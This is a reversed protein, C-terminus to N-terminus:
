RPLLSPAISYHSQVFGFPFTRTSVVRLGVDAPLKGFLPIGSGILVPVVTITLESILGAALFAQITRGGDVYLHRHGAASAIRVVEEPPASLLSVTARTGPPLRRMSASLVYVPKDEYPWAPFSLVKEFSARGMVLADISAMFTSYGCDEGAPVTANAQELWDIAGDPRAIFGDLSTAIYVSARM